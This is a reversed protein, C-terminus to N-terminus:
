ITIGAKAGLAIVVNALDADPLWRNIFLAQYIDGNFSNAFSTNGVTLETGTGVQASVGLVTATDLLVGNRHIEYTAGLNYRFAYVKFDGSVLTTDRTFGGNNTLRISTDSLMYLNFIQIGGAARTFVVHQNYTGGATHDMVLVLTFNAQNDTMARITADASLVDDTGDFRLCPYGGVVKYLPRQGNVTQNLIGGTGSKEAVYGVPDNDAAVAVSGDSSQKLTSLDTPDIWYGKYLGSEFVVAPDYAVSSSATATAQYASAAYSWARAMNRRIRQRREDVAM